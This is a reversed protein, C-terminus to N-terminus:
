TAGTNTTQKEIAIL